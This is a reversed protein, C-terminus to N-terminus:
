KTQAQGQTAANAKIQDLPNHVKLYLHVNAAQLQDTLYKQLTPFMFLIHRASVQDKSVMKGTTADKVKETRKDDVKIIHYGFPSEVLEPAVEGKKLAFAATEFQPVMEGKGFWSLDGGNQATSDQGYQKALAAFDGGKKVQDLVAQAAARIQTRATADSQIKENLKNQLVYPRMVKQEYTAFNWGYRKTLEADVASVTKFQQLVQDKLATLDKDEVAIGMSAAAQAVLINNIQRMLVQDSLDSDSLNAASGNNAKDYSRMVNIAKLDDAYESYPVSVGNVKLAPLRLVKAVSLSFKDTATNRYVRFIGVGVMGLVVLVILGLFGYTFMKKNQSPTVPATDQTVPTEKPEMTDM